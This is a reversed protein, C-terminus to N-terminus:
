KNNKHYKTIKENRIKRLQEVLFLMEDYTFVYGKGAKVKQRVQKIYESFYNDYAGIIYSGSKESILDIDFIGKKVGVGIYEFNSLFDKINDKMEESLKDPVIMNLRQNKDKIDKFPKKIDKYIKKYESRVERLYEFTTHKKRWEYDEDISSSQLYLSYLVSLSVIFTTFSIIIELIEKEIINNRLLMVLLFVFIVILIIIVFVTKKFLSTNKKM